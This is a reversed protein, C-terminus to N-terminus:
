ATLKKSISQKIKKITDYYQGKIISLYNIEDEVDFENIVLGSDLDFIKFNCDCIIIILNKEFEELEVLNLSSVDHEKICLFTNSDYIYIRLSTAVVIYNLKPIDLISRIKVSMEWENVVSCTEKSWITAKFNDSILIFKDGNNVKKSSIKFKNLKKGTSFQKLHLGYDDVIYLADNDVYVAYVTEYIGLNKIFKKSDLDFLDIYGSNGIIIQNHNPIYYM